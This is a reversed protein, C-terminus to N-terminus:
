MPAALVVTAARCLAVLWSVLVMLTIGTKWFMACLRFGALSVLKWHGFSGASIWVSM